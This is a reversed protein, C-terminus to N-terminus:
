RIKMRVKKLFEFVKEAYEKDFRKGYYMIGNRFYRLQNALYTDEESFGLERLYAVEAEHAGKGTAIFGKILMRASILGRIADYAEKIITNANIDKIGVKNKFEMLFQYTKDSEDILSRARAEDPFQKKVIGEELFESFKKLLSM